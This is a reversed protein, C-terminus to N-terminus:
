VIAVFWLLLKYKQAKQKNRIPLFVLMRVIFPSIFIAYKVVVADPCGTRMSFSPV